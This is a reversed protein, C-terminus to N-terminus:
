FSIVMTQTDKYSGPVVYQNPMLRYGVAMSQLLGTGTGTYNHTSEYIDDSWVGDNGLVQYKLQNSGNKMVAYTGAKNTASSDSLLRWATGKTCLITFSQSSTQYDASNPNYEGFVVDSAAMKCSAALTATSKNTATSGSQGM